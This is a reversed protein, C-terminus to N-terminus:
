KAKSKEPALRGTVLNYAWMDFVDSPVKSDTPSAPVWWFWAALSVAPYWLCDAIEWGITWWKLSWENLVFPGFITLLTVATYYIVAGVMLLFFGPCGYTRAYVSCLMAVLAVVGGIVLVGTYFATVDAISAFVFLVNASLLLLSAAGWAIQHVKFTVALLLVVPLSLVATQLPRAWAAVLEGSNTELSFYQSVGAMVSAGLMMTAVVAIRSSPNKMNITDFLFFVAAFLGRVAWGVIIAIQQDSLAM